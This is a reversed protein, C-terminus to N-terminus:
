ISFCAFHFPQFNPLSTFRLRRIELSIFHPKEISIWIPQPNQAKASAIAFANAYKKVEHLFYTGDAYSLYTISQARGGIASKM